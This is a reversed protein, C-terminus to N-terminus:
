APGPFSAAPRIETLFMVKIFILEIHFGTGTQRLTFFSFTIVVKYSVIAVNNTMIIVKNRTIKVKNTM